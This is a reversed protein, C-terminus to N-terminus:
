SNSNKKSTKDYLKEYVEVPYLLQSKETKNQEKTDSSKITLPSPYGTLEIQVHRKDSLHANKEEAESLHLTGQSMRGLSFLVTLENKHTDEFQFSQIAELKQKREVFRALLEELPKEIEIWFMLQNSKPDKAIKFRVDADTILMLDQAMILHSLVRQSESLFRQEQYVEKIKVGTLIIGFSIIFLVVLLELLTFYSKKVLRIM